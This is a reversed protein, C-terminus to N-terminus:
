LAAAAGLIPQPLYKGNCVDTAIKDQREKLFKPLDDVSMGDVGASGKNARVRLYAKRINKRNIVKEIM